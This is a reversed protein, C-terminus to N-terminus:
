WGYIHVKRDSDKLFVYEENVELEEIQFAPINLKSFYELEFNDLNIVGLTKKRSEVFYLRNKVVKFTNFVIVEPLRDEFSILDKRRGTNFDVVLLRRVHMSIINNGYFQINGSGYEINRLNWITEGTKEDLRIYQRGEEDGEEGKTNCSAFLILSGERSVIDGTMFGDEWKEEREDFFRATERVNFTWADRGTALDIKTLDYNKFMTTWYFQSGIIRLGKNTSVDFITRGRELLKFQFIDDDVRNEIYFTEGIKAVYQEDFRALERIELNGTIEFITEDYFIQMIGHRNNVRGAGGYASLDIRAEKGIEGARSLSGDTGVLYCYGRFLFIHAIDHYQRVLRM